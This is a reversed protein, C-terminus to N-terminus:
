RRKKITLAAFPSLLHSRNKWMDRYFNILGMFKHINKRCKPREMGLISQVKDSMLKVGERTICHGLYEVESMTLKCKDPKVKLGGQQLRILVQEIKNLYEDFSGNSKILLDDIHAFVNKIDQVLWSMREQFIDVSSISLGMPLRTCPYRGWPTTIVCKLHSEIDLEIHWYGM